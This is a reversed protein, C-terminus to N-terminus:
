DELSVDKEPILCRGLVTSKDKDLPVIEYVQRGNPVIVVFECAKGPILNKDDKYVAVESRRSSLQYTNIVKGNQKVQLRYLIRGKMQFHNEIRTLVRLETPGNIQIKLPKEKSFRYYGVTSERSILDVPESPQIPSFAIWDQKKAKIPTFSYRVAVPVTNDKIWFQVSHDGRGLEIECDKLQGPVGLTGNLYTAKKSRIASSIRETQQEGGDVSFLVEYRIKESQGPAFRGRTLVRLKGPGRVSIVSAKEINLSYYYRNKGEIITTVRKQYNTPKLYKTKGASQSMLGSNFYLLVSLIFLIKKM